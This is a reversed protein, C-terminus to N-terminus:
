FIAQRRAPQAACAIRALVYAFTILETLPMVFWIAAGGFIAPLAFILVGNVLIGRLISVVFSDLRKLVSQFYYTSAVNLSLLIFSSSYIRIAFPAKSIIEETPKMFIKVFANPISASIITWFVGFFLASMSGYKLCRKVRDGRDAGFNVSLIPQAAQGVSYACCQVFTFLQIIVAYISLEATGLYKMIQNNAFITFIGMAIDIFFSSFGTSLIRLSDKAFSFNKNFRLTNKKSFFHSLLVFLTIFAGIGTAIGAGMVGMDLAFVFFWDGFVNFIGGALVAITALRPRGDNRIFCSLLNNFTFVPLCFKLPFLYKQAYPLLTKDAGFLRLIPEDFFIMALWFALIIFATLMLALTFFGNAKERESKGVANSYLVAGGIGTLLGIAYVVNWVPAFCALAATAAPGEYQGVMAMDVIGYIMSILTSGFSALLFNFYIRKLNGNIFDM